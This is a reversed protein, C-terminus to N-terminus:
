QTKLEITGIDCDKGPAITVKQPSKDLTNYRSNLLDQGEPTFRAFVLSYEGPPIGDQRAYMGLSFKGGNVSQGWIRERWPEAEAPFPGEPLCQVYVGGVPAGDVVVTGTVHVTPVRNKIKPKPAARPGGCATMSLGIWLLSIRLLVRHM